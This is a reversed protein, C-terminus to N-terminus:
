VYIRKFAVYLLHTNFDKSFRLIQQMLVQSPPSCTGFMKIFSTTTSEYLLKQQFVRFDVGNKNERVEERRFSLFVALFLQKQSTKESANRLSVSPKKAQLQFM